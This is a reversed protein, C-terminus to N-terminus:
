RRRLITLGDRLPLIVAEVRPDAAVLDNFAAIGRTQPDTPLPDGAPKGDWLTNDAIIYGGSPVRDVVLAFYESYLRKNADIYVLDFDGELRPIVELADGIVLRIRAPRPNAEFLETLEDELEDDIEVTTLESGPPMGEALSLASYGTFTGLELTRRPAIMTALMKLTRGQLHGSCMRPYLHRLHTTRYLRALEPPEPEIHSLIYSELEPTM